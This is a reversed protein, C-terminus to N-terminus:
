RVDTAIQMARSSPTWVIRRREGHLGFNLLLGVNLGTTALYNILQAESAGSLREVSKLEVIVKGAVVLDARFHGVEEGLFTVTMPMEREFPVGRARLSLCMANAYVHEHMGWPLRRRIDFYASLIERTIEGHLLDGMRTGVSLLLGAMM